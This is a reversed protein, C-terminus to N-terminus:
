SVQEEFTFCASPARGLLMVCSYRNGNRVVSVQTRVWPQLSVHRAGPGVAAASRNGVGLCRLSAHRWRSTRCRHSAVDVSALPLGMPLCIFRRVTQNFMATVLPVGAKDRLSSYAILSVRRVITLRGAPGAWSLERCRFPSSLSATNTYLTRVTGLLRVNRAGWRFRCDVAPSDRPVGTARAVSPVPYCPWTRQPADIHSPTWDHPTSSADSEDPSNRTKGGWLQNEEPTKEPEPM